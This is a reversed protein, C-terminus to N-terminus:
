LGETRRTPRTADRLRGEAGPSAPTEPEFSHLVEFEVGRLSERSRWDRPAQGAPPRISGGPEGPMSGSVLGLEQELAREVPWVQQLYAALARPGVLLGNRMAFHELHLALDAASAIRYDPDRRLAAMVIAELEAPYGPIRSSPPPADTEVVATMVQVDSGRFLRSMTTLEWLMVGLGFVDSRRDVDRGRVQEPSMYGHTGKVGGDREDRNANTRAVGFDLLKAVGDHTLVVNQPTVDRHVIGLPDGARDRREHAHHLAEAAQMVIGLAVAFPVPANSRAGTRVVDAVNMGRVYEMAIYWTGDANGLSYVQTINPHCLESMLKAEFQFSRLTPAHDALHSFLRKVVVDRFFGAAAWERAVFVDAMGGAAIKRLLEYPGLRRNSM